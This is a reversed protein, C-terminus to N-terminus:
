SLSGRLTLVRRARGVRTHQGMRHACTSSSTFSESPTSDPAGVGERRRVRAPRMKARRQNADKRSRATARPWGDCCHQAGRRRTRLQDTAQRSCGAQWRACARVEPEGGVLDRQLLAVEEVAVVLHTLWGSLSPHLSRSARRQLARSTSGRARAIKERASSPMRTSPMRARALSRM